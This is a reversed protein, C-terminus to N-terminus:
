PFVVTVGHSRLVTIQNTNAVPVGELSLTGGNGLDGNEAINIFPTLDTLLTDNMNIFNLQLLGALPTADDIATGSLDIAELASLAAVPTANTVDLNGGLNLERLATLSALPSIDLLLNSRADLERLQTLGSLPSLDEVFNFAINLETLQTLSALPGLDDIDNGELDVALLQTLGGLPGLDEVANFFLVLNTASTLHVLPSLDSIGLTAASLSDIAELDIDFVENTPMSKNPIQSRVAAELAPEPFSISRIDRLVFLAREPVENTYTLVRTTNTEVVGFWRPSDGWGDLEGVMVRNTTADWTLTVDSGALHPPHLQLTQGLACVAGTVFFLGMTVRLRNALM